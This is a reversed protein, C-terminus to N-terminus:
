TEGQMLIFCLAEFRHQSAFRNDLPIIQEFVGFSLKPLKGAIMGTDAPCAGRM